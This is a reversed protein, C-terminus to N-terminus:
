GARGSGSGASGPGVPRTRPGGPHEITTTRGAWLDFRAVQEATVPYFPLEFAAAAVPESNVIKGGVWDLSLVDEGNAGVLRVLSKGGAPPNAATGIVEVRVPAGLSDRVSQWFSVFAPHSAAPLSPHFASELGRLDGSLLKTSAEDAQASLERELILGTSDSGALVSM